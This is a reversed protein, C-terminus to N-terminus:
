KKIPLIIYFDSGMNPASDVHITGGLQMILKKAIPLGLGSGGSVRTMHGGVQKFKKFIDQIDSPAIGM